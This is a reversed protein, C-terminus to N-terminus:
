MPLRVSDVNDNIDAGAPVPDRHKLQLRRSQWRVKRRQSCDVRGRSVQPRRDGAENPALGVDGLHLGRQSCM